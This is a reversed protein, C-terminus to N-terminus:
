ENVKASSNFLSTNTGDFYIRIRMNTLQVQWYIFYHLRQIENQKNIKKIKNIGYLFNNKTDVNLSLKQTPIREKWFM